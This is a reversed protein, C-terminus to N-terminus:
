LDIKKSTAALMKSGDLPVSGDLIWYHEKILLSGGQENQVHVPLRFTMRKKTQHSLQNKARLTLTAAQKTEHSAGTMVYNLRYATEKEQQLPMRMKLSHRFRSPVETTGRIGSLYFTGNLVFEGNLLIPIHDFFGVRSRLKLRQHYDNTEHVDTHHIATFTYALHAPKLTELIEVIYRTNQLDDLNVRLAFHYRNVTLRIIASPNKLFRNVSKELSLYTIPPINSMMNLLRARRLEISDDSERQVKLMREWRNLGWTATLPFFQDTVDFISEDLQEFEPAETKLLHDVDYIETFYPPLYNKMEDLKSM